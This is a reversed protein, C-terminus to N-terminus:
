ESIRNDGRVIAAGPRTLYFVQDGSSNWDQRLLGLEALTLLDDDIFQPDPIELTPASGLGILDDLARVYILGKDGHEVLWRLIILGQDSIATAGLTAQAIPRLSDMQSAISVLLSNMTRLQSTVADRHAGLADKISNVLASNEVIRDLLQEHNHARLWAVFEEYSAAESVQRESRFLGILGVITAFANAWDLPIM